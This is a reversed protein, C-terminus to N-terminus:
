SFKIPGGIKVLGGGGFDFGFEGGRTKSESEADRFFGFDERHFSVSNTGNQSAFLYSDEMNVPVALHTTNKHVANDNVRQFDLLAFKNKQGLESYYHGYAPLSFSTSALRRVSYTGIIMKDAFIAPTFEAGTKLLISVTSGRFWLDHNPYFVPNFINNLEFGNSYIPLSL